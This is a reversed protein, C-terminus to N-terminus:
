RARIKEARAAGGLVSGILTLAMVGATMWLPQTSGPGPTISLPVPALQAALLTLVGVALGHAAPRRRAVAAGTYGGAIAALAHMLLSMFDLLAPTPGSAGGHFVVANAMAGLLAIVGVGLVVGVASRVVV